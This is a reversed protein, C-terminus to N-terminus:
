PVCGFPAAHKGEIVECKPGNGEFWGGPSDHGSALPRIMLVAKGSFPKLLLSDEDRNVNGALGNLCGGAVVRYMGHLCVEVAEFPVSHLAHVGPKRGIKSGLTGLVCTRDARPPQDGRDRSDKPRAGLRIATENEFP